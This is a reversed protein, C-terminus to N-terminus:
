FTLEAEVIVDYKQKFVAWYIWMTSYLSHIIVFAQTHQLLKHPDTTNIHMRADSAGFLKNKCPFQQHRQSYHM